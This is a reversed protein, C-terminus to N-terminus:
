VIFLTAFGLFAVFGVVDTVTTLLVGGSLAPDIGFRKLAIPISVGALSAAILNIIIAAGILGGLELNQFWLSTVTAIAIAWIVGNLAGVAFSKACYGVSIKLM